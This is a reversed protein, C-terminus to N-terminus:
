CHGVQNSRGPTGQIGFGEAPSGEAPANINHRRAIMTPLINYQCAFLISNSKSTHIM